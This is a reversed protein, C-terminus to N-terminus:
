GRGLYDPHSILFNYLTGDRVAHMMQLSEASLQEFSTGGINVPNYTGKNTKVMMLDNAAVGKLTFLFDEIPTGQTDLVFAKGAADIVRRLKGFDTLVGKSTAEKAIAKLLKQQNQQRDYDANDLGYRIRSYDLAYEASMRRCGSEHVLPKVGKPLQIGVGDKYWGQVVKGNADLGLHASEARQTICMDVGGLEQVIAEFGVFDVIAGGHFKIGTLQNITNALLAFGRQRRTLEDGEAMYGADFAANIKDTGGRYGSKSYAPIPVRIDRPISVLFAQDHTAPVHLIVITDARAGLSSGDKERVDIGVMLINIAGDINSGASATGAEGELLSAQGIGDTAQGILVKAGVMVGGSTFMLLAGFILLLRAWLPDPSRKKAKGKGPAGKGPGTKDPARTGKGAKKKARQDTAGGDDDADIPARDFPAAGVTARGGSRV